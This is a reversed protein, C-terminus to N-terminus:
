KLKCGSLPNLSECCCIDKGEEFGDTCNSPSGCSSCASRSMNLSCAKAPYPYFNCFSNSGYLISGDQYRQEITIFTCGKRNNNVGGPCLTDWRPKGVTWWAFKNEVKTGCGYSNETVLNYDELETGDQSALKIKSCGVWGGNYRCLPATLYKVERCGSAVKDLKIFLSIDKETRGEKWNLYDEETIKFKLDCVQQSNECETGFIVKDGYHKSQGCTRAGPYPEEDPKYWSAQNLPIDFDWETLEKREIKTIILSKFRTLSPNIFNLLTYAGVALFLGIIASIMQNKAQSVMPANGAATMWRFGAVMIMVVALLAIARISWTYFNVIFDAITTGTITVEKGIKFGPLDVQPKFKIQAFASNAFLLLTSVILLAILFILKDKKM